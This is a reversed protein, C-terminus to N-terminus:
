GIQDASVDAGDACLGMHPSIGQDLTDAIKRGVRELQMLVLGLNADPFVLSMLLAQPGADTILIKGHECEVITRLFRGQRLQETALEATGSMAATMAAVIKPDAGGILGHTVIIGDRRVLAFATVDGIERIDDIIENLGTWIDRL